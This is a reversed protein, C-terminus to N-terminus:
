ASGSTIAAFQPRDGPAEKRIGFHRANRKAALM